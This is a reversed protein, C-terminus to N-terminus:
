SVLYAVTVCTAAFSFLRPATAAQPLLMGLTVLLAIRNIVAMVKGLNQEVVEGEKTCFNTKRAVYALASTSFAIASSIVVATLLSHKPNLTVQATDIIMGLSISRALNKLFCAIPDKKDAQQQELQGVQISLGASIALGQCALTFPTSIM